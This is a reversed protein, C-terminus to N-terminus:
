VVDEPVNESLEQPHVGADSNAIDSPAISLDFTKFMLNTDGTVNGEVAMKMIVSEPVPKMKAPLLTTNAEGAAAAAVALTLVDGRTSTTFACCTWCNKAFEGMMKEKPLKVNAGGLVPILPMKEETTSESPRQMADDDFPTIDGTGRIRQTNM